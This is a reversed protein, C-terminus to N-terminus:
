FFYFYCRCIIYFYTIYFFLIAFISSFNLLWSEQKKVILDIFIPHIIYIGFTFGSLKTVIGKFQTSFNKDSTYMMMFIYFSISQLVVLPNLYDYFFTIVTVNKSKLFATFLAITVSIFFWAAIYLYKNFNFKLMTLEKGIMFYGLYPVFKFAFFQINEGFFRSWASSIAGAIFIIIILNIRTKREFNKYVLSILPTVFYIGLILFLYWLHYYPEGIYLRAIIDKISFFDYVYISFITFFVSWFVLPLLIRNMRKKFFLDVNQFSKDNILLAGSIMIFIPVSWRSFANFFNAFMWSSNAIDIDTKFYYSSVHIVVVAFAALIRMFDISINNKM